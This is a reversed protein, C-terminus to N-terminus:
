KAEENLKRNTDNGMVSVDVWGTILDGCNLRFKGLRDERSFFIHFQSEYVQLSHGSNFTTTRSNLDIVEDNKAETWLAHTQIGDILLEETCILKGDGSKDAVFQVTLAPPVTGYFPRHAVVDRISLATPVISPVSVKWPNLKDWSAEITTLNKAFAAIAAVVGFLLTWWNLLKRVWM